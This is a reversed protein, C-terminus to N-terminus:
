SGAELASTRSSWIGPSSSLGLKGPRLDAHERGRTCQRDLHHQAPLNSNFAETVTPLCAPFHSVWIEMRRRL